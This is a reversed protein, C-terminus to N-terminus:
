CWGNGFKSFLSLSPVSVVPKLPETNSSRGDPGVGSPVPLPILRDSPPERAPVGELPYPLMDAPVLRTRSGDSRVLCYGATDSSITFSYRAELRRRNGPGDSRPGNGAGLEPAHRFIGDVTDRRGSDWFGPMYDDGMYRQTGTATGTGASAGAAAAAAAAAAATARGVEESDSNRHYRNHYLFLDYNPHMTRDVGKGKDKKPQPAASEADSDAPQDVVSDSRAGRSELEALRDAPSTQEKAHDM